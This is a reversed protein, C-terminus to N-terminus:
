WQDFPDGDAVEAGYEEVATRRDVDAAVVEPAVPTPRFLRIVRDFVVVVAVGLIGLLLEGIYLGGALVVASLGVVGLTRLRRQRDLVSRHDAVIEEGNGVPVAYVEQDFGVEEPDVEDPLDYQLVDYRDPADREDGQEAM